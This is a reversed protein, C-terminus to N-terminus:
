QDPVQLSSRAGNRSMQVDAIKKDKIKKDTAETLASFDWQVFCDV